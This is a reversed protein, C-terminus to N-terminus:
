TSPLCIPLGNCQVQLAKVYLQSNRAPNIRSRRGIPLLESAYAPGVWRRAPHPRAPPPLAAAHNADLLM